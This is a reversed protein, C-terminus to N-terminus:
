MEEKVYKGYTTPAVQSILDKKKKIADINIVECDSCKPIKEFQRKRHIERMQNFKTGKWLSQLSDTLINGIVLDGVIDTCCVTVDGNGFVALTNWLMSCPIKKSNPNIELLSVGENDANETVVTIAIRDVVGRWTQIIMNTEEETGNMIITQLVTEPKVYEGTNKLHTFRKINRIVRDYNGGWRVKEYTAASVGDVSFVIKDLGSKLIAKAKEETLSNANTNFDVRLGKKKSYQLMEPFQPHLLPEGGMQLVVREVGWDAAEDIIRTFLELTMFEKGRQLIRKRPCMICNLDCVNTPEVFIIQPADPVRGYALLSSRWLGIHFGVEEVTGELKLPRAVKLATEYALKLLGL